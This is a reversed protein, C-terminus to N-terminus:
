GPSTRQNARTISVAGAGGLLLLASVLCIAEMGPRQLGLALLPGLGAGAFLCFTFIASAAGRIAVEAQQLLLSILPPAASAIAIAYLLAAVAIAPLSGTSAAGGELALGAAAVTLAGAAVAHLPLRRTLRSLLPALLIGVLGVLRVDLVARPRGAMDDTLASYMAVFSLLLTLGAGYIALLEPRRLLGPMRRYASTLPQGSPPPDVPLWRGLMLAILGYVVALSWFVWRWGAAQGVAGGFIQGAIGASFYGTIVIAFGTNRFGPPLVLALFAWAVPPYTAGAIAQLVRFIVLPVLSNALGTLATIVALAAVGTVLLQRRGIRDSLPGFLLFFAAYVLSPLSGIWAQPPAISYDRAVLPAIPITIYVLSPVTV